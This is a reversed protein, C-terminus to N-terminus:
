DVSKGVSGPTTRTREEVGLTQHYIEVTQEATKRWSFQRARELGKERLEEQFARNSLVRVLAQALENTNYPNVLCAAGAGAIEPISAVNSSIVPTGCAMAEIVPLGFGEYLSPYVFVDAANYLLPLDEDPVFGTFIVQNNLESQKVREFVISSQWQNKGVIILKHPAAKTQKVQAFAEILRVLNKRPQLNGVALIFHNSTQYKARVQSLLAQDHVPRFQEGAAYPTVVVKNPAIQYTEVLERKTFETATIIGAARRVSRPVFTKLVVRDRPSFWQPFKEFSIDHVTVISPCPCFLPANYTVHLLDLHYHAALRPLTVLLRIIPSRTSLEVIHLRHNEAETRLESRNEVFIFFEDATDLEALAKVLEFIYTGNGTEHHGLM